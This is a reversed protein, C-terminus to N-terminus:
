NLHLLQTARITAIEGAATAVFLPHITLGLEHLLALKTIM